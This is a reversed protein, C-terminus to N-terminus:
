EEEVLMQSDDMPTDVLRKNKECERELNKEEKSSGGTDSKLTQVESYIFMAGYRDKKLSDYKTEGDSKSSFNEGTLVGWEHWSVCFPKKADVNDSCWKALQVKRKNESVNVEQGDSYEQLMKPRSQQSYKNEADSRNKFFQADYNGNRKRAVCYETDQISDGIVCTSAFLLHFLVGCYRKM